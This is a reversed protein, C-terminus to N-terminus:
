IATLDVVPKSAGQDRPQQRNGNHSPDGGDHPLQPHLFWHDLEPQQRIAVEGDRNCEEEDKSESNKSARRQNWLDQLREVSIPSRVCSEYQTGASEYNRKQVSRLVVSGSVSQTQVYM